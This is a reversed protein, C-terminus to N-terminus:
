CHADLRSPGAAGKTRLAASCIVAANLCDFIVPHSLPPNNWGPLLYEMFLPHASPHKSKLVDRVVRSPSDPDVAPLFHPLEPPRPLHSSDAPLSAHNLDPSVTPAEVPVVSPQSKVLPQIVLSCPM